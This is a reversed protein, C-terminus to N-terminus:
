KFLCYVHILDPFFNNQLLPTKTLFGVGDDFGVGVLVSLGFGDGMGECVVNVKGGLVETEAIVCAGSFICPM